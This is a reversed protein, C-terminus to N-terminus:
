EITICSYYLINDYERLRIMFLLQVQIMIMLGVYLFLFLYDDFAYMYNIRKNQPDKNHKIDKSTGTTIYM